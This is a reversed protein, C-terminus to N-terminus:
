MIIKDHKGNNKINEIDIYKYSCEIRIKHFSGKCSYIVCFCFKKIGM